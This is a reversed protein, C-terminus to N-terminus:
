RYLGKVTSWSRVEIEGEGANVGDDGALYLDWLLEAGCDTGASLPTGPCLPSIASGFYYSHGARGTPYCTGCAPPGTPGAPPHDSALGLPNGTAVGVTYVALVEPFSLDTWVFPNWGSIPLFPHSALLAGTPCGSADPAYLSMLGTYGYGSPCGTSVYVWLTALDVISMGDTFHVGVQDVPGWDSWVWIWGTCYNYYAITMTQPTPWFSRTPEDDSMRAPTKELAM